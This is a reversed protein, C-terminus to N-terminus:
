FTLVDEGGWASFCDALNQLSENQMVVSFQIIIFILFLGCIKNKHNDSEFEEVTRPTM